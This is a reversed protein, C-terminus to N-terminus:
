LVTVPFPSVLIVQGIFSGIFKYEFEYPRFSYIRNDDFLVKYEDQKIEEYANLM